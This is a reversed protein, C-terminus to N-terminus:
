LLCYLESGCSGIVGLAVYGAHNPSLVDRFVVCMTCCRLVEGLSTESPSIPIHLGTLIFTFVPRIHTPMTVYGSNDPLPLELPFSLRIVLVSVNYIIYKEADEEHTGPM